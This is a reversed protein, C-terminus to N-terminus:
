RNNPANDLLSIKEAFGLGSSEHSSCQLLTRWCYVTMRNISSNSISKGDFWLMWLLEHPRHKQAEFGKISLNRYFRDILPDPAWFCLGYSSKHFNHNSLFLIDLSYISFYKINMLPIHDFRLFKSYECKWLIQKAQLRSSRNM